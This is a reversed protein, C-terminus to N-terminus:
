EKKNEKKNRPEHARATKNNLLVTNAVGFHLHIPTNIVAHTYFWGLVSVSM